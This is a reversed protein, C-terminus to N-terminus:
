KEVKKCKAIPKPQSIYWELGDIITKEKGEKILLAAIKKHLEWNKDRLEKQMKEVRYIEANLEVVRKRHIEDMIENQEIQKALQEIENMKIDEQTISLTSRRWFIRGLESQM